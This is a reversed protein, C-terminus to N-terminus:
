DEDEHNAAYARALDADIKENDSGNPDDGKYTGFFKSIDGKRKPKVTASTESSEANEDDLVTVIARSKKTLKVPELLRVKGDVDIEAEITTLM